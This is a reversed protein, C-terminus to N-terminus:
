SLLSFSEMRMGIGNGMGIGGNGMLPDWESKGTFLLKLLDNTATRMTEVSGGPLTDKNKDLFGDSSYEM